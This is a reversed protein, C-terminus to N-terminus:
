SSDRAVASYRVMGDGMQLLNHQSEVEAAFDEYMEFSRGIDPRIDCRRVQSGVFHPRPRAVSFVQM